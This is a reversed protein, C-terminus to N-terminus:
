SSPALSPTLGAIFLLWIVFSTSGIIAAAAFVPTIIGKRQDHGAARRVLIWFQDLRKVLALGGMLTLLMGVFACFIGLSM